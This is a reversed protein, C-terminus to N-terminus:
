AALHFVVEPKGERVLECMGVEDLVDGVRVEVAGSLRDLVLSPRRTLAWVECRQQPLWETLHGGIFGGAGVVLCRM